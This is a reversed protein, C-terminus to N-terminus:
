IFTGLKDRFRGIHRCATKFDRGIESVGKM